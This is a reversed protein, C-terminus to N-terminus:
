ATLVAKLFNFVGPKCGPHVAHFWLKLDVTM